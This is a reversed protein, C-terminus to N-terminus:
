SALQAERQFRRRASLEAVDSSLFKIAVARNLKTDIARYVIGMGGEGLPQELRYVGILTGAALPSVAAEPIQQNLSRTIPPNPSKKTITQHKNPSQTISTRQIM